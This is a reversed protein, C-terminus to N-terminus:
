DVGLHIVTGGDEIGEVKIVKLIGQRANKIREQLQLLDKDIKTPNNGFMVLETGFRQVLRRLDEIDTADLNVKRVLRSVDPAQLIELVSDCVQELVRVALYKDVKGVALVERSTFLKIWGKDQFKQMITKFEDQKSLPPLPNSNWIILSRKSAMKVPKDQITLPETKPPIRLTLTVKKNRAAEEPVPITLTSDAQATYAFVAALLSLGILPLWVRSGPLFRSM